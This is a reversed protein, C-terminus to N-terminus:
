EYVIMSNKYHRSEKSYNSFYFEYPVVIDISYQKGNIGNSELETITYYCEIKIEKNDYQSYAIIYNDHYDYFESVETIFHDYDAEFIDIIFYFVQITEMYYIKKEKYKRLKNANILIFTTAVGIGFLVIVAEVITFGRQLKTMDM